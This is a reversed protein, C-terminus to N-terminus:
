IRDRNRQQERKGLSGDVKGDQRSPPGPRKGRMPGSRKARRGKSRNSQPDRGNKALSQLQPDISQESGGVSSTTYVLRSEGVRKLKQEANTTYTLGNETTQKKGGRVKSQEQNRLLWRFLYPNPKAKGLKVLQLHLTYPNTIVGGNERTPNKSM